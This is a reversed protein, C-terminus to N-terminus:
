KCVDKDRWFLNQVRDVQVVTRGPLPLHREPEQGEEQELVVDLEALVVRDLDTGLM